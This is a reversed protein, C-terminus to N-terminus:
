KWSNKDLNYGDEGGETFNYLQVGFLRLHKIWKKEAELALERDEYSEILGFEFMHIGYKKISHRLHHNSSNDAHDQWRETPDISVGIYTKSNLKNKIFYIYSRIENM